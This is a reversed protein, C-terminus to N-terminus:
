MVESETRVRSLVRRATHKAGWHTRARGRFEDIWGFAAYQILWDWGGGPNRDIVIRRDPNPDPSNHIRRLTKM